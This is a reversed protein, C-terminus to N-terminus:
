EGDTKLWDPCDKHRWPIIGLPDEQQSREAHTFIQKSKEDRMLETFEAVDSQAETVAKVFSKFLADPSPQKEVLPGLMKPITGRLQRAKIYLLKLRKMAHDLQIEDMMGDGSIADAVTADRHDM